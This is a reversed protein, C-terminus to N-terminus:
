HHAEEMAGSFYMLSLLIFIFAQLFSVFIGLALFPLPVILPALLLLTSIIIEHGMMNGFLRISLSLPRSLHGIIEVPIMLPTLWWVPGMFHKLYQLGHAKIGLIHTYIFVILALAVTTNLNATPPVFGPILGLLNSILIYIGITAIFPFFQRGKEGMTDVIINDIADVVVEFVSQLGGPVMQIRKSIVYSLAALAVIVYLTLGVHPPIHFLPLLIIPHEM